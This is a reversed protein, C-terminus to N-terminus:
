RAPAANRWLRISTGCSASRKWIKVGATSTRSGNAKSQPQLRSVADVRGCRGAPWRRPLAGALPRRQRHPVGASGPPRFQLHLHELGPPLRGESRCARVAAHWRLTRAWTRRHSFAGAGLRRDRWRRRSPLCRRLPLVRRPFRLSGLARVLGLPQYGWSGGFPHEAVPMLEVHSFGMEVVYPVLREALEDWTPTQGPGPRFWSAPMCKTSRSRRTPGHRGARSSMWAEDHWVFPVPDAVVSATAPPAETAKALPDAKDPLRVGDPDLSRSSTAPARALWSAPVTGLRRVSLAAADPSPASGLYQLRRGGLGRSCKAGLRCVANRARWDDGHYQRRPHLRDRVSRGENFLHLDTESLLLGFSYPDETEQAAGPWHIRFRYPSTGRWEEWSCSRRSRNAVPNWPAARRRACDVEVGRAGPPFARVYRGIETDFPGLVAFPDRLSGASLQWAQEPSISPIVVADNM